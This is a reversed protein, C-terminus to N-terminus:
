IKLEKRKTIWKKPVTIRSNCEKDSIAAAVTIENKDEAILFGVTKCRDCQHKKEVSEWGSSAVADIWEFYIIKM